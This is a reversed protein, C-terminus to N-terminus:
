IITQLTSGLSGISNPGEQIRAGAEILYQKLDSITPAPGYIPTGTMGRFAEALVRTPLYIGDYKDYYMEEGHVVQLEYRAPDPKMKMRVLHREDDIIEFETVFDINFKKKEM